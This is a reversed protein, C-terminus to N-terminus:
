KVEENTLKMSEKMKDRGTKDFWDDYEFVGISRRLEMYIPDVVTQRWSNYGGINGMLAVLIMAQEESLTLTYENEVVRRIEKKEVKM